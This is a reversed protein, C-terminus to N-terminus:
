GQARSVRYRELWILGIDDTRTLYVGSGPEGRSAFGIVKSRHIGSPPLPKTM